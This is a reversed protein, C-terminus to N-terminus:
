ESVQEDIYESFAQTANIKGCLVAPVAYPHQQLLWAQLASLRQKSTKFLIICESSKELKDNWIYISKVQPIINVCAAYHERVAQEALIEANQLTNVTTYAIAIDNM